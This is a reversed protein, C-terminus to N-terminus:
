VDITEAMRERLVRVAETADHRVLRARHASALRHYSVDDDAFYAIAEALSEVSRPPVVRGNVGDDVLETLSMHNTVVVPIGAMMAEIIVGPHGERPFWTPLALLDYNAIFDVPDDTVVGGYRVNDSTSCAALFRQEIGPDIPGYLDCCVSFSQLNAREVAEILTLVGKEEIIRGLFLVRLPRGVARRPMPLADWEVIRSNPIMISNNVGMRSLGDRVLATEVVVLDLNRLSNIISNKKSRTINELVHHVVGGSFWVVVPVNGVKKLLYLVNRIRRYLPVTALFLIPKTRSAKLVMEWVIRGGRVIDRIDVVGEINKSRGPSTNVIDPYMGTNTRWAEVFTKGIATYGGIPPPLPGVFLVNSLHTM